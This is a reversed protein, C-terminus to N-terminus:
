PCNTGTQAYALRFGVYGSPFSLSEDDSLDNGAMDEGVNFIVGVTFPPNKSCVDADIAQNDLVNLRRGCLKTVIGDLTFAANNSDITNQAGPITIFDKACNSGTASKTPAGAIAQNSIGFGNQNNLAEAGTAAISTYCIRCQAAFRRICIKYNQNALHTISNTIAPAAPLPTGVGLAPNGYDSIRGNQATHYQLCGAPGAQSNDLDSDCAYQIINLDWERNGAGTGLMINITHCTKGDSDLIM